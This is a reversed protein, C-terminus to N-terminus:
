DTKYQELHSEYRKRRAEGITEDELINEILPLVSTDKISILFAAEPGEIDNYEQYLEKVYKRQFDVFDILNSDLKLKILNIKKDLYFLSDLLTYFLEKEEYLAEYQDFYYKPNSKFESYFFSTLRIDINTDDKYVRFLSDLTRLTDVVNKKIHISKSSVFEKEPTLKKNAKKREKSSCSIFVLITVIFIFYRM